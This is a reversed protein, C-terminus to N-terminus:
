CVRMACFEHKITGFPHEVTRRRLKMMKLQQAVAITVLNRPQLNRLHLFRALCLLGDVGVLAASGTSGVPSAGRAIWIFNRTTEASPVSGTNPAMLATRFWIPTGIIDHDGFSPPKLACVSESPEVANEAESSIGVTV